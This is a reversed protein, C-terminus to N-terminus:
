LCSAMHGGHASALAVGGGGRSGVGGAREGSRGRGLTSARGSVRVGEGRGREGNSIGQARRGSNMVFWLEEAASEREGLEATTEGLESM